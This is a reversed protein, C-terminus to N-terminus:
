FGLKEGPLTIAWIEEFDPRSFFTNVNLWEAFLKEM